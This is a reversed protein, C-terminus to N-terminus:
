KTSFKSRLMVGMMVVIVLLLGGIVALLTKNGLLSTIQTQIVPEVPKVKLKIGLSLVRNDGSVNLITDVYETGDKEVAITYIGPEIDAFQTNGAEDTAGSLEQDSDVHKITVQAQPEPGQDSYTRLLVTYLGEAPETVEAADLLGASDAAATLNYSVGTAGSLVDAADGYRQVATNELVIAAEGDAVPVVEMSYVTCNESSSGLIVGEFSPNIISPTSLFSFGCDGLVLDKIKLELPMIVDAKAANFVDGQGDIVLNVTFQSDYSGSSPNIQMLTNAASVQSAALSFFFV